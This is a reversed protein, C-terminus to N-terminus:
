LFFILSFNFIYMTIHIHINVYTYNYILFYSVKNINSLLIISTIRFRYLYMLSYMVLCFDDPVILVEPYLIHGDIMEKYEKDFGSDKPNWKEILKPTAGFSTYGGVHYAAGNIVISRHWYKKKQLGNEKKWSKGDYVYSNTDIILTSQQFIM